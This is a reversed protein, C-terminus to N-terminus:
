MIFPLVVSRVRAKDCLDAETHQVDYHHLRSCALSSAVPSRMPSAPAPLPIAEVTGAATSNE